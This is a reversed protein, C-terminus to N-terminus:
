DGRFQSKADRSATRTPVQLTATVDAAAQAASRGELRRRLFEVACALQRDNKRDELNTSWSQPTEVKIDPVIGGTDPIRHGDEDHKYNIDYGRPPFYLSTTLRIGGDKGHNMEFLTQVKGKGFTREGIIEAVGYDHLAGTVIEAASASSGNVLVAMPIRHGLLQNPQLPLGEQEGDSHRIIVVNNNLARDTNEPVFQSAVDVAADLLGGPNFRLDLVLARMGRKELDRYAAEIQSASKRNFETLVIHGIGASADEMWKEVVPPEINARVVTFTMQKGARMVGLRVETGQKGELWNGLGDLTAGRIDQGDIAVLLDGAKLGAREAPGGAFPRAIRIGGRMQEMLAGIGGFQGETMTVLNNWETPDLYSSFPDRLSYMMGRIAEYTLMRTREANIESPYYDTRLTQLASDWVDAPISNDASESSFASQQKHVASAAREESNFATFLPSILTAAFAAFLSVWFMRVVALLVTRQRKKGKPGRMGNPPLSM